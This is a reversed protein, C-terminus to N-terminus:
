VPAEKEAKVLSGNCILVCCLFPARDVRGDDCGLPLALALVLALRPLMTWCGVGSAGRPECGLSAAGAPWRPILGGHLIGVVAGASEAAGLGEAAQDALRPQAGAVEDVWQ